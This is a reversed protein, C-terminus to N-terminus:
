LSLVGDTVTGSTHLVGNVVEGDIKVINETPEYDTLDFYEGRNNSLKYMWGEFRYKEKELGFFIDAFDALKTKAFEALETLIRLTFLMEIYGQWNNKCDRDILNQIKSDIDGGNLKCVLIEEIFHGYVSNESIRTAFFNKPDNEKFENIYDSFATNYLEVCMKVFATEVDATLKLNEM